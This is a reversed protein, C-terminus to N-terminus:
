TTARFILDIVNTVLAYALIVAFLGIVAFKIIKVAKEKAEPYGPSTILIVGGLVLMFVAIAGSAYLILDTLFNLVHAIKNEVSASAMDGTPLNEPRFVENKFTDISIGLANPIFVPLLLLIGIIQLFTKKM